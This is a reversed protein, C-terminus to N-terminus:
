HRRLTAATSKVFEPRSNGRLRSLLLPLNEGRETLFNSPEDARPSGRLRADPGFEWNRYLRIERYRRQLWGLEPFRDPDERQSLISADPILRSRAIRREKRPHGPEDGMESIVTSSGAIYYYFDPETEGANPHQDEVTEGMVEFREGRQAIRLVHRLPMAGNPYGVVADVAALGTAGDGKWLWESIGGMRRVPGSLDRPAAQLLALAEIFNSKGSGNPGILVNLQEMPLDVGEPGFSLMGSIKLRRILVDRPVKEVFISSATTM